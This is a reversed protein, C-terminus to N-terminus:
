APPENHLTHYSLEHHQHGTIPSTIGSARPESRVGTIGLTIGSARPELRVGTTGAHDRAPITPAHPQRAYAPHRLASCAWATSRKARSITRIKVTQTARKRRSIPLGNPPEALAVKWLDKTFCWMPVHRDTSGLRGIM